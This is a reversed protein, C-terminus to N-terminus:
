HIDRRATEVALYLCFISILALGLFYLSVGWTEGKAWVVLATAILPTLGGALAASVQYSLSAGSYRIRTGFLESLFAAQPGYMAAHCIAFGFIISTLIISNNMTQLFWFFPFAYFATLIAGFMYVPRRGLRDSLYAFIPITIAECISAIFIGWLIKTKPIHLQQTAYSIVFVSFLYYTANEAFRVGAGLFFNRKASKFIEVLPIQATNEKQKQELFMPSESISLRIILGIVVIIIGLLFPIRWGWALFAPEPLYSVLAFMSTALVLGIPAGMQPWSAYFGRHVTESHEAAMLVAGGWEGGIGLGQAFRLIVLLLPAFIGIQNYTPLLGICFTAVGMISLTIILMSKRGIRDGFHGFIIGGIPRSLFGVAFTAYAAIVGTTPNLHPFFLKNFVLAAATGYLFFDYWEITTGVLSAFAVKSASHASSFKKEM